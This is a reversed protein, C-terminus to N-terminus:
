RGNRKTLLTEMLRYLRQAADRIGLKYAAKKMEKLSEKNLLLSDMQEVLKTATLDKELM